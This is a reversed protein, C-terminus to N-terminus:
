NRIDKINGFHIEENDKEDTLFVGEDFDVGIITIWKDRYNIQTRSGYRRTNFEQLTM